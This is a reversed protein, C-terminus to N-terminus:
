KVLAMKLTRSYTGATLRFFYVGSAALHGDDRRGDWEARHHGAQVSRDILTRVVAGRVDYVALRVSETSVLDFAITTSPNFPNPFNQYLRTPLSLDPM